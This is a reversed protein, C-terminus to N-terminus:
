NRQFYVNILAKMNSEIDYGYERLLRWTIEQNPRKMCCSKEMELAWTELPADLSIFKVLGSGVDIEKTITDSLICPINAAQAEVVSSPGGEYFSPMVFLDMVSLLSPIDERQGLFRVKPEIHYESVLRKAEVDAENRGAILLISNPQLRLFANFVKILFPHNKVPRANGLTGIIYQTSEIGLERKYASMDFHLDVFPDLDTADPLIIVRKERVAREGFVYEAAPTSCAIWVTSTKRTLWKLIKNKVLTKISPNLSLGANRAHAIRVPIGALKAFYLSIGCDITTHAHVALYNQQHFIRKWQTIYNCLGIKRWSEVYFVRGGLQEIQDFYYHRGPTTVVFDFQLLERNMIKYMQLVRTEAGGKELSSFVQLVRKM